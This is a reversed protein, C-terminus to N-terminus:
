TKANPMKPTFTLPKPADGVKKWGEADSRVLYASKVSHGTLAHIATTPEERVIRCLDYSIGNDFEWIEDIKM